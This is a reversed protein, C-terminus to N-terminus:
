SSMEEDESDDLDSHVNDAGNALAQYHARIADHRGAPIPVNHARYYSLFQKEYSECDECFDEHHLECQFLDDPVGGDLWFTATTSSGHESTSNPRWALGLKDMYKQEMTLSVGRVQKDDDKTGVDEPPDLDTPVGLKTAEVTHDFLKLAAKCAELPDTKSLQKVDRWM